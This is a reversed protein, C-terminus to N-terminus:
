IVGAFVTVMLLLQHNGSVCYTGILPGILSCIQRQGKMIMSSDAYVETKLSFMMRDNELSIHTTGGFLVSKL